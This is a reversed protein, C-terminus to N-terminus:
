TVYITGADLGFPLYEELRLRLNAERQPAKLHCFAGMESRDEAGTRIQEPCGLHLQAYAPQGYRDSTFAPVLWREVEARIAMKQTQTLSPGAVELRSAIELDPQCRYRRPTSSSPPVFSFRVCGRQSGESDVRGTFIVETALTLENVLSEGIVTTRELWAPASHSGSVEGAIAATGVGDVISDLIWLGRSHAPVRLPGTVSFAM